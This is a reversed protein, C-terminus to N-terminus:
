LAKIFFRKNSYNTNENKAVKKKFSNKLPDTMPKKQKKPSVAPQYNM